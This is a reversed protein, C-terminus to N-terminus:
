KVTELLGFKLVFHQYTKEKNREFKENEDYEKQGLSFHGDDDSQIEKLESWCGM